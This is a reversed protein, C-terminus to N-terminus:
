LLLAEQWALLVVVNSHVLKQPAFFLTKTHLPLAKGM